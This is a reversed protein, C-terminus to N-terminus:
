DHKTSDLKAGIERTLDVVSKGSLYHTRCVPMYTEAGGVLRTKTEQTKRLTFSAPRGCMECRAALKTVSDAHPILDLLEGFRKRRFDGDLGAIFLTKGDYDAARLSFDVLGHIFQAEDVGIVLAQDYAERHPGDELVEQLSKVSLCAMAAGDHSVVADKAYRTDIRSKVLLVRRGRGMEEQMRTLLATTKGAFMPGTIVHIAGDGRAGRSEEGKGESEAGASVEAPAEASAAAPGTVPADEATAASAGAVPVDAVPVDSAAAGAAATRTRRRTPPKAAAAHSDPSAPTFGQSKLGAASRVRSARSSSSSSSSISSTGKKSDGSAAASSGTSSSGSPRGTAAAAATTPSLRTSIRRPFSSSLHPDTPIPSLSPRWSTTSLRVAVHSILSM